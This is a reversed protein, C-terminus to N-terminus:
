AIDITRPPRASLGPARVLAPTEAPVDLRIRHPTRVPLSAIGHEVLAVVCMTGCCTRSQADEGQPCGTPAPANTAMPDCVGAPETALSAAALNQPAEQPLSMAAPALTKPSAGHGAHASAPVAWAFSLLVVLATAKLAKALADFATM